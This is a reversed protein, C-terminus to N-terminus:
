FTITWVMANGLKTEGFYSSEAERVQRKNIIVHKFFLINKCKTIQSLIPVIFMMYDRVHQYKQGRWVSNMHTDKQKRHIGVYNYM